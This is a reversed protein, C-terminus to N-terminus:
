PRAKRLKEHSAPTKCLEVATDNQTIPTILVSQQTALAEEMRRIDSAYRRLAVGADLLRKDKVSLEMRKFIPTKWLKKHDVIDALQELYDPTM